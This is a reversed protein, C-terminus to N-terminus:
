VITPIDVLRNYVNDLRQFNFWVHLDRKLIIVFLSKDNCEVVPLGIILNATEDYLLSVVNMVDFTHKGQDLVDRREDM